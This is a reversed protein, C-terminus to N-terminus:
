TSMKSVVQHRTAEELRAAVSGEGHLRASAGDEAHVRATPASAGDNEIPLPDNTVQQGMQDAGGGIVGGGMGQGAGDGSSASSVAGLLPVKEGGNDHGQRPTESLLTGEEAGDGGSVSREQSAPNESVDPSPRREDGSSLALPDADRSEQCAGAAEEVAARGSGAARGSERFATVAGTVAGQVVKEVVERVAEERAERAESILAEKEHTLGTEPAEQAGGPTTTVEGPEKGPDERPAHQGKDRAGDESPLSSSNLFPSSNSPTPRPASSTRSPEYGTTGDHGTIGDRPGPGGGGGGPASAESHSSSTNSRSLKMEGPAGGGALTALLPDSASSTPFSYSPTLRPASSTRSPPPSSSVGGGGALQSANSTIIAELVEVVEGVGEVMPHDSESEEAVPRPPTQASDGGAAPRQRASMVLAPQEESATTTPTLPPPSPPPPALLPPPTAAAATTTTNPTPAAAATTTSTTAAALPPSTPPAPLPPSTTTTAAATTTTTTTTNPAAALPPFTPLDPSPAESTTSTTTTTTNATPAAALPPAPRPAEARVGLTDPSLTEVLTDADSPGGSQLATAQRMTEAQLLAEKEIEFADRLDFM